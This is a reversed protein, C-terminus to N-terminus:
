ADLVLGLSKGMYICLKGDSCTTNSGRKAKPPLFRDIETSVATVYAVGERERERCMRCYIDKSHAPM